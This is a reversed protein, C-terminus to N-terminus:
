AIPLKRPVTSRPTAVKAELPSDSMKTSASSGERAARFYRWTAALPLAVALLFVTNLAANFPIGFALSAYTDIPYWVLVSSTLAWWAWAEERAFAYRAVFFITLGWGIITSGWVAFAWGFFAAAGGAPLKGAFFAAIVPDGAPKTPAFGLAVMAAGLAMLAVSVVLLWRRWFILSRM